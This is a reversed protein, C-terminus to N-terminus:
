KQKTRAGLWPKYIWKSRNQEHGLGLSIYGNVEPTSKEKIQSKDSFQNTNNNHNIIIDVTVTKIKL